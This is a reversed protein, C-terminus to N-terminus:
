RPESTAGNVYAHGSIITDSLTVYTGGSTKIDYGSVSIVESAGAYNNYANTPAYAITLTFISILVICLIVYLVKRDKINFNIRKNM